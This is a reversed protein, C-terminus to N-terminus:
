LIMRLVKTAVLAGEDPMETEDDESRITRKQELSSKEISTLFSASKIMLLAPLSRGLMNGTQWSM